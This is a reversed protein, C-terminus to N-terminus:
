CLGLQNPHLVQQSVNEPSTVKHLLLSIIHIWQQEILVVHNNDQELVIPPHATGLPSLMDLNLIKNNLVINILVFDGDFM